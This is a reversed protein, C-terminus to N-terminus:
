LRIAYIGTPIQDTLTGLELKVERRLYDFGGGQTTPYAFYVIPSRADADTEFRLWAGTAPSGLVSAIATELTPMLVSQVSASCLNQMEIVAADRKVRSALADFRAVDAGVFEPALCLDIDESFRDIVGFVKSL